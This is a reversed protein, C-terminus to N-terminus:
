TMALPISRSLGGTDGRACARPAQRLRRGRSFSAAFVEDSNVCYADEVDSVMGDFFGNDYGRESNDWGALNDHFAFDQPFLFVASM